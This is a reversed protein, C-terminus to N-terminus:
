QRLIELRKVNKQTKRVPGVKATSIRLGNWTTKDDNENVGTYRNPVRAFYINM